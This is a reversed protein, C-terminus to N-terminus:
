ITCQLVKNVYDKDCGNLPHRVCSPSIIWQGACDKGDRPEWRYEVGYNYRRISDRTIQEPTLPYPIGLPCDPLGIKKRDANLRIRENIHLRKSKERKDNM